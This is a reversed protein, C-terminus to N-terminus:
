SNKVAYRNTERQLYRRIQESSYPRFNTTGAPIEAPLVPQSNGQKAYKERAAKRAAETRVHDRQGARPGTEHFITVNEEAHRVRALEIEKQRAIEAQRRTEAEKERNEKDALIEAHTSGTARFPRVGADLMQNFKDGKPRNPAPPAAKPQFDSEFELSFKFHPDALARKLNEVTFELNNANIWVGLLKANKDSFRLHESAAWKEIAEQTAEQTTM